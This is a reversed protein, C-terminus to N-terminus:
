RNASYKALAQSSKRLDLLLQKTQQQEQQCHGTLATIQTLWHSLQERDTIPELLPRLALSLQEADQWQEDTLAQQLQHFTHELESNM